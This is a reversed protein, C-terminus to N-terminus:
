TEGLGDGGGEGRLWARAVCGDFGLAPCGVCGRNAHQCNAMWEGLRKATELAEVCRDDFDPDYRDLSKLYALRKDIEARTLM